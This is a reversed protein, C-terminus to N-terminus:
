AIICFQRRSEGSVSDIICETREICKRVTVADEVPNSTGLLATEIAMLRNAADFLESAGTVYDKVHSDNLIKLHMTKIKGFLFDDEETSVEENWTSQYLVNMLKQTTKLLDSITYSVIVSMITCGKM